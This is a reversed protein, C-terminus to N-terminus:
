KNNLIIWRDGRMVASKWDHPHNVGPRVQKTKSCSLHSVHSLLPKWLVAEGLMYCSPGVEEELRLASIDSSNLGAPVQAHIHIMQPPSPM